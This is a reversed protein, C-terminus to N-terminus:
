LKKEFKVCGREINPMFVKNGLKMFAEHQAHIPPKKGDFKELWKEFYGCDGFSNPEYTPAPPIYNKCEGCTVTRM